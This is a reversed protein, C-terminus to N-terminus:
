SACMAAANGTISRADNFSRGANIRGPNRKAERALTLADADDFQVPTTWHDKMPPWTAPNVNIKQSKYHGTEKIRNYAHVVTSKNRGMFRAIECFLMGTERLRVMESAEDETMPRPTKRKM